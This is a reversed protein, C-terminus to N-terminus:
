VTVEATAGTVVADLPRVPETVDSVEPRRLVAPWNDAVCGTWVPPFDSSESRPCCYFICGLTSYVRRIPLSHLRGMQNTSSPHPNKDSKQQKAKTGDGGKRLGTREDDVPGAGIAHRRRHLRPLLTNGRRLRLAQRLNLGENEVAHLDLACADIGFDEGGRREGIHP